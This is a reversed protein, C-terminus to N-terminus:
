LGRDLGHLVSRIDLRVEEVVPTLIMPICIEGVHRSIHNGSGAGPEIRMDRHLVRLVLEIADRCFPRSIGLAIWALEAKLDLLNQLSVRERRQAAEDALSHDVHQLGVEFQGLAVTRRRLSLAIAFLLYALRAREEPHCLHINSSRVSDRRSLKGSTVM